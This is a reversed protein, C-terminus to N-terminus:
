MSFFALQWGALAARNYWVVFPMILLTDRWSPPSQLYMWKVTAETGAVFPTATRTTFSEWPVMMHDQITQHVESSRPGSIKSFLVPTSYGRIFSFRPAM